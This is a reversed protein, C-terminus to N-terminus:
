ILGQPHTIMVRKGTLKELFIQTLEREAIRSFQYIIAKNYDLDGHLIRTWLNPMYRVIISLMYLIMVAFVEWDDTRGFLPAIMMSASLGKHTHYSEYHQANKNHKVFTRWGVSKSVNDEYHNIITIPALFSEILHREWDLDTEGDLNLFDIYSGEFKRIYVTKHLGTTYNFISDYHPFLFYPRYDPKIEQMMNQLEPIHSFLEDLSIVFDSKEAKQRSPAFESVDVGRHSLWAQFLGKNLVAVSFNTLNQADGFTTMGHGNKTITEIESLSSYQPGYILMEAEMLAITGYYLNLLRQTMNRTAANDYYDIANQVLYSVGTAKANIVGDPLDIESNKIHHLVANQAVARSTFSQLHTYIQQLPNEEIIRIISRERKPEETTSPEAGLLEMNWDTMVYLFDGDPLVPIKCNQNYSYDSRFSMSSVFIVEVTAELLRYVSSSTSQSKLYGFKHSASDRRVTVISYSQYDDPTSESFDWGLTNVIQLFNKSFRSDM